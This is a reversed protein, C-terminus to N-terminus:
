AFKENNSVVETVEKIAHAAIEKVVQMLPSFDQLIFLLQM